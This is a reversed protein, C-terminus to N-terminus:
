RTKGQSLHIRPAAVSISRSTPQECLEVSLTKRGLTHGVIVRIRSCTSDTSVQEQKLQAGEPAM